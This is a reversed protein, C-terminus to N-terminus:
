RERRLYPGLCGRLAQLARYYRAKLAPLSHGTAAAIEAFELGEFARARVIKADHEPLEALCAHVHAYDEPPADHAVAERGLLDEGAVTSRKRRTSRRAANLFVHASIAFLWTELTADGRYEALKQWAIGLVEQTLDRLDELSLLGGSRRNRLALFRPVCRMREVLLDM